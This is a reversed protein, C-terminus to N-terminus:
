KEYGTATFEVTSVEPRVYRTENNVISLVQATVRVAEGPMAWRAVMSNLQDHTLALRQETGTEIYASKQDKMSSPYFCVKYTVVDSASLPSTAKDWTLILAVDDAIGKNLVIEEVSCKVHMEDPYVPLEFYEPDKNCSAFVGALLCISIFSLIKKM